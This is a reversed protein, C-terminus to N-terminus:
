AKSILREVQVFVDPFALPSITGTTLTMETKYEGNKLNRFVKLQPTKLNM